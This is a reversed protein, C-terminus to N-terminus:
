DIDIGYQLMWWLISDTECSYEISVCKDPNCFYFNSVERCIKKREVGVIREEIEKQEDKTQVFIFDKDPNTVYNGARTICWSEAMKRNNNFFETAQEKIKTTIETFNYFNM